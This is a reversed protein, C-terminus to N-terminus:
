ATSCTTDTSSGLAGAALLEAFIRDQAANRAGTGALAGRPTM